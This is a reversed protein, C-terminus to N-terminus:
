GVKTLSYSSREGRYWDGARVGGSLVNSIRNRAKLYQSKPMDDKFLAEMVEAIKFEKGPQTSLVLKVADPISENKVGPRVYKQWAAIRGDKKKNKNAAKHKTQGKATPKKLKEPEVTKVVEPVAEEADTNSMEDTGGFMPLVSRVSKLKAQLGELQTNLEKEQEALDTEVKKLKELTDVM